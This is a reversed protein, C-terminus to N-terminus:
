SVDGIRFDKGRLEPKMAGRIMANSDHAAPKLVPLLTGGLASSLVRYNDIKREVNAEELALQPALLAMAAPTNLLSGPPPEPTLTVRPRGQFAVGLDASVGFGPGSRCPGDVALGLDEYVQYRSSGLSSQRHDM